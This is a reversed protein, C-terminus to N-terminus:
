IDAVTEARLLYSYSSAEDQTKKNKKDKEDQTKKYQM